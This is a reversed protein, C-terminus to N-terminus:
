IERWFNTLSKSRWIQIEFDQYSRLNAYPWFSIHGLIKSNWALILVLRLAAFEFDM